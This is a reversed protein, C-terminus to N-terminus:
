LTLGRNDTDAVAVTDVVLTGVAAATLDVAVATSAAAAAIATSGEAAAAGSGAVAMRRAATSAGLRAAHLATVALLAEDAQSDADVTLAADVSGATAVGVEAFAVVGVEAGGTGPVPESLCEAWLGTLDTTATLHALTPIIITTDTVAYQRDLLTATARGTNWVWM